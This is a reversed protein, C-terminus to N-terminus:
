DAHEVISRLEEAIEDDECVLMMIQIQELEADTLPATDDAAGGRLDELIRRQVDNLRLM